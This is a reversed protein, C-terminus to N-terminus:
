DTAPENRLYPMIYTHMDTFLLPELWLICLNSQRLCTYLSLGHSYKIRLAEFLFKCCVVSIKKSKDKLSFLTQHKM